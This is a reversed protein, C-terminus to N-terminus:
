REVKRNTQLLHIPFMQDYHLLQLLLLLQLLQLYNPNM